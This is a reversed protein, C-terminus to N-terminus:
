VNKDDKKLEQFVHQLQAKNELKLKKLVQTKQNAITKKSSHSRDEEGMMSDFVSREAPTLCALAAQLLLREQGTTGGSLAYINEVLLPLQDKMIYGSAFSQAAASEMIEQSYLATLILVKADTRVRIEKSAQIGEEYSNGLHLDMLVIDPKLQCAAKVAERGGTCVGIVEMREHGTLEKELLWAYDRDDEVILIKIM